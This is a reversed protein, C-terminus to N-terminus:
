KQSFSYLDTPSTRQPESRPTEPLLAWLGRATLRLGETIHAPFLRGKIENILYIVIKLMNMNKKRETWETQIFYIFANIILCKVLMHVVAMTLNGYRFINMGVPHNEIATHTTAMYAIICMNQTRQKNTM